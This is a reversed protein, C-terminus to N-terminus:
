PICVVPMKGDPGPTNIIKLIDQAEPSTMPHWDAEEPRKILVFQQAEGRRIMVDNGGQEAHNGTRMEVQKKLEPTYTELYAVKRSNKDACDGTTSIVIARVGDEEDGNVGKIPPVSSHPAVFLTKGSLDYFYATGASQNNTRFFRVFGVAAITLGIVAGALKFQEATKATM